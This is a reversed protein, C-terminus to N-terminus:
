QLAQMSIRKFVWTGNKNLVHNNYLIIFFIDDEQVAVM